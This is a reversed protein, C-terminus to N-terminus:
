DEALTLKVRRSHTFYIIVLSQVMLEVALTGITFIVAQSSTFGMYSMLDVVDSSSLVTVLSLLSNVVSSVMVIVMTTIALTKGLKKRMGIQVCTIAAAVAIVLSFVASSITTLTSDGGALSTLGIVFMFANVVASFGFMVMFFALWGEIGRYQNVDYTSDSDSQGSRDVKVSAHGGTEVDSSKTAFPQVREARHEAEASEMPVAFPSKTEAHEKDAIEVTGTQEPVATQDLETKAIEKEPM